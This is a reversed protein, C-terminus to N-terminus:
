KKAHADLFSWLMRPLDKVFNGPIHPAGAVAWLEAAGNDKCGTYRTVATEAGAANGDLDLSAPHEPTPNCGNYAGWAAVIGEASPVSLVGADEPEFTGGDFPVAQDATGHIHLVGVPATPKCRSQDAFYPASLSVMAAFTGSADCSLRFAMGAGNSHGVLYVRKPDIAYDRSIEKVLGTLYAVDDVNKGDLDCCTDTANWFHKGRSDVMGDPAVIFFGKEDAINALMFYAAQLTGGAGYGHLVVVLPAPKSADYGSPARFYPVPRDGGYVKDEPPGAEAGPPTAGDSGSKCAAIVFAAAVVLRKM